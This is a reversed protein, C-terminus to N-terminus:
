RGAHRRRRIRKVAGVMAVGGLLGVGAVPAPVLSDESKRAALGDRINDPFPRPETPVIKWQSRDAPAQAMYEDFSYAPASGYARSSPIQPIRVFLIAEINDGILKEYETPRRKSQGQALQLLDNGMVDFAVAPYLRVQDETLYDYISRGKDLSHESAAVYAYAGIAKVYGTPGQHPINWGLSQFTDVSTGACNNRSHNYTFDHRYLHNYVRDIAGQYLQAPRDDKFLAVVMYSPRYFSQGSNLDMLYKDMPTAAAVIGKESYSDLNYVNNVLWNSWEGGNQFRGTAIAFHGGHAEDDDGQAGNLMLGIVSLHEWKRAAGPHREWLVRSEFKSTAGGHDARVLSKLSEGPALAQMRADPPLTFDKPWITRAVFKDHGNESVVEGRLRLLRERYFRQTASNYYSRNTALKRAVAFDIQKGDSLTLAQGGPALHATEIVKSSGVWVLQPRDNLGPASAWHRVDEQAPRAKDFGAAPIGNRPSAVLDNPFYWLAQPITQCDPCRGDSLRFDAADYLGLTEGDRADKVAPHAHAVGTALLLAVALQNRKM